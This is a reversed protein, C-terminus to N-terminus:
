QAMQRFSARDTEFAREIAAIAGERARQKTIRHANLDLTRYVAARERATLELAVAPVVDDLFGASVAGQPTFVEALGVVRDYHTPSLRHRCIELATWPLVMGIAVENAVLKFPGDAGLRYDCSLLLFSGMAIAHGPCAGIVPTPFQLLRLATRFGAELLDAAEAGGGRLVRLDFGGSFVGERGTLVVVAGESEARDLAGNLEVFMTPSLANVKGDDMTVIAVGDAADYSVITM